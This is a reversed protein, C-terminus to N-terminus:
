TNGQAQMAGKARMAAVRKVVSEYRERQADYLEALERQMEEKAKARLAGNSRLLRRKIGLRFATIADETEGEALGSGRLRARSYAWAEFVFTVQALTLKLQKAIAPLDQADTSDDIRGALECAWEFDVSDRMRRFGPAPDEVTVEGVEPQSAALRYVALMMERGLGKGQYPPLVLAQCVRLKFGAFPNRFMFLTYYGVYLVRGKRRRVLFMCQWRDDSFDVADATEIHWIALKEFRSLLEAAGADQYSSLWIEYSEKGDVAKLSHILKGPPSAASSSTSREASFEDIVIEIDEKFPILPTGPPIAKQLGNSLL